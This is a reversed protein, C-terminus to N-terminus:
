AGATDIYRLTEAVFADVQPTVYLELARRIEARSDVLDAGVLAFGSPGEYDPDDDADEDYERAVAAMRNMLAHVVEHPDTDRIGAMSRLESTTCHLCVGGATGSLTVRWAALYCYWERLDHEIM